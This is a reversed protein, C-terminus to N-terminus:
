TPFFKWDCVRASEGIDLDSLKKMDDDSLKFDFVQFNEKIRVPNVSKPIPVANKEILFRLMVQATSKKYKDAIKKVVPNQLMNPLEKERQGVSKLFHNYGPAALPCYAVVVIGNKNCFDMLEKQQLGLHMEIQLSAPKIRASKLIREMQRKNFNSLGIAKTRGADVQEEMKKWLEVHDTNELRLQSAPTCVYGEVYNTGVPFHVLYLDLYSLRLNELSKKLLLEVRDPHIGCLPLKTTIFLDERKLKGASIWQQIVKGIIHENEYFYATDIHRYGCELAVNLATELEKEDTCMWTGLGIGPMKKGGLMDKYVVAM